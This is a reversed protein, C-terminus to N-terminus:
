LGNRQITPCFCLSIERKTNKPGLLNGMKPKINQFNFLFPVDKRSHLTSDILLSILHPFNLSFFKLNMSFRVTHLTM